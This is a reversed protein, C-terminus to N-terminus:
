WCYYYGDRRFVDLKVGFFASLSEVTLLEKKEGDAVIRGDRILVVRKIEPIIDSLNHTIMLIGKGQGAIRRLMDRLTRAAQLDLSATPEDLLMTSPDNVLARAITVLRSEGTSVENVKKNRLRYIGMLRMAANAKREMDPTVDHFYPWIGASSFFGSLVTERCSFNGFSSRGAEHSVIGLQNRLEAVNWLDKGLIRMYSGPNDSLPHLERTITKILSSKGAGNPGLIAVHEGAAISLNIDGLVKRENRVLTVNKYEILPPSKRSAGSYMKM